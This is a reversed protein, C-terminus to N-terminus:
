RFIDKYISTAAVVGYGKSVNSFPPPPDSVFDYSNYRESFRLSKFYDETIHYMKIQAYTAITDTRTTSAAISFLILKSQGNFNKDSVKTGYTNLCNNSGLPDYFNNEENIDQDNTYVCSGSFSTGNNNAYQIQTEANFFYFDTQGVPDTFTFYIDDQVTGNVDIRANRIRKIIQVPVESPVTISATATEFSPAVVKIEYQKNAVAVLSFTYMSVNNNYTAIVPPAGQETITVVANKVLYDNALTNVPELVGRSKSVSISIPSGGEIVANVVLTPQVPPINFDIKKECSNLLWGISTIITITATSFKM